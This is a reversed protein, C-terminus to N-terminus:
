TMEDRNRRSDTILLVHYHIKERNLARFQLSGASTAGGMGGGGGGGGSRGGKGRSQPGNLMQM